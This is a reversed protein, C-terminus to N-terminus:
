LLVAAGIMPLVIKLDPLTDFISSRLLALLNAADETGRDLLVGAHGLPAFRETLGVPSVPHVFM